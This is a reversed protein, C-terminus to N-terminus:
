NRAMVRIGQLAGGARGDVYRADGFFVATGGATQETRVFPFRSWVLYDRVRADAMAERVPTATWDGRPISNPLFTVRGSATLWSFTGLTYSDRTAIVLSGRHPQAPAPQYMVEEIGTVGASVAARYAVKEGAASAVIMAIIYVSAVGGFIQVRRRTRRWRFLAVTFLLWLWPDIIFVADGYLWERSFPMMLRVGYTNLWDLLPHSLVGVFAILLTAGFTLPTLSAASAGRRRVFRDWALMIATLVLPLLVMALPGHTWGRRLALGAYSGLFLVFVDIDPANAALMLTGSALPLTGRRDFGARALVAGAMTHTINDM